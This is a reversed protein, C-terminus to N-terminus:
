SGGSDGSRRVFHGGEEAVDGVGDGVGDCDGLAEGELEGVEAVFEGVVGDGVGFGHVGEEAFAGVFADEAAVAGFVIGGEEGAGAFLDVVLEGEDGFEAEGAVEEDNPVDDAVALLM